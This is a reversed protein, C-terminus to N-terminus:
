RNWIEHAVIAAIYPAHHSDGGNQSVCASRLGSINDWGQAPGFLVWENSELNISSLPLSTKNPHQMQTMPENEHACLFDDFSDFVEFNERGTKIEQDTLNICALKEVGWLSRLLFWADLDIQRGSWVDASWDDFHFLINM